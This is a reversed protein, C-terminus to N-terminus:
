MEPADRNKHTHSIIPHQWFILSMLLAKLWQVQYVTSSMIDIAEGLSVEYMDFNLESM